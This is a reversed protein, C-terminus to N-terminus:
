ESRLPPPPKTRAVFEAYDATARATDMIDIFGAGTPLDGREIQDELPGHEDFGVTHFFKFHKGAIAKAKRDTKNQLKILRKACMEIIRALRGVKAANEQHVKRLDIVQDKTPRPMSRAKTSLVSKYWNVRSIFKM